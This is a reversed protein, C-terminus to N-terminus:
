GQIPLATRDLGHAETRCTDIIVSRVWQLFPDSHSRHHWILKPAYFGMDDAFSLIAFQDPNQTTTLFRRLTILPGVFTFNTEEVVVPLSTTYPTEFGVTQGLQGRVAEHVDSFYGDLLRLEVSRYERLLRKDIQNHHAQRVLPHDRRVFIGFRGRYLTVAHFDGPTDNGAYFAMDIQNDRLRDFIQKEAQVIRMVSNPAMAYFKRLIERTFPGHFIHDQVMLRVVRDMHELDLTPAEFLNAANNLMERMPDLLERMRRTAAMETGSRVFLEDHFLERLTALRRSASSMSMGVASATQTLSQTESLSILFMLDHYRLEALKVRYKATPM